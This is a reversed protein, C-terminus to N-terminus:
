ALVSCSLLNCDIESLKENYYESNPQSARFNTVFNRFATKEESWWTPEIGVFRAIRERCTRSVNVARHFSPKISGYCAMFPSKAWFNTKMYVIGRSTCRRGVFEIRRTCLFLFFSSVQSEVWNVVKHRMTRCSKGYKVSRDFKILTASSLQNLRERIDCKIM